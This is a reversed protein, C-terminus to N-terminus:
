TKNQKTKKQSLIESQTSRATWFENQLGPQSQVRLSVGGKEPIFPMQCHALGVKKYYSDNRYVQRM